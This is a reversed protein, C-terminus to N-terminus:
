KVETSDEDIEVGLAHLLRADTMADAHLCEEHWGCRIARRGHTLSDSGAVKDGVILHSEDRGVVEDAAQMIEAGALGVLLDDFRPIGTQSGYGGLSQINNLFQTRTPISGMQEAIGVVEM